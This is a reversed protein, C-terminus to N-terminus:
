EFQRAAGFLDLLEDFDHAREAQEVDAAGADCGQVPPRLLNSDPRLPSPGILALLVDCQSVQEALVDAWKDGPGIHGEVDMFLQRKPYRANERRYNIFINSM